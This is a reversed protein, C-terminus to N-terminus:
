WNARSQWHLVEADDEFGELDKISTVMAELM